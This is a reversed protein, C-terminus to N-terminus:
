DPLGFKLSLLNTGPRGRIRKSISTTCGIISDIGGIGVYRERLLGHRHTM